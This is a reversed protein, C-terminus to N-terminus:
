ISTDKKNQNNSQIKCIIHSLLLMIKIDIADAM